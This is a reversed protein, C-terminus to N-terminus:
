VDKQGPIAFVTYSALKPVPAVVVTADILVLGFILFMLLSKRTYLGIGVFSRDFITTAGLTLKDGTLFM